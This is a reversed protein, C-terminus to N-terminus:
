DTGDNNEVLHEFDCSPCKTFASRLGEPFVLEFAQSCSPCDRLLKIGSVALGEGPAGELDLNELQSLLDDDQGTPSVPEQPKDDILASIESESVVSERPRETSDYFVFDSKAWAADDVPVFAEQDTGVEEESQLSIEAVRRSVALNYVFVGAISIIGMVLLLIFALGINSLGNGESSSQVTVLIQREEVLGAENEVRLIVYQPGKEDFTHIVQNGNSLTESDSGRNFIWTYVLTSSENDIALAELAIPDGRITDMDEQIDTIIPPSVDIFTITLNDSSKLGALDTVELTVDHDGASFDSSVEISLQASSSPHNDESFVVTGDIKWDVRDIGWNDYITGSLYLTEGFPMVIPTSATIDAVPSTFDSVTVTSASSSSQNDLSTVSLGISYEGPTMWQKTAVQGVQDYVGDGNLDWRFSSAEIQNSKNPTELASFQVEQSVDIADLDSDSTIIPQVIPNITVTVTVAVPSDGASGGGPGEKNDIVVYLQENAIDGVKWLLVREDLIQLMDASIVRSSTSGSSSYSSFASETMVFIDPSGEMTRAHINLFSGEDISFPGHSVAFSGISVRSISDSLTFPGSNILGAELDVEAVQGGQGGEGNDQSHDKNDIVLYWGTTPRDSPVEWHWEGDGMFSEFVSDSEWVSDSRYNQGGLYVDLNAAPFLLIDIEFNADIRFFLTNGPSQTGLNIKVCSQDSLVFESGLGGGEPLSSNECSIVEKAGTGANAGSSLLALAVLILTSVRRM